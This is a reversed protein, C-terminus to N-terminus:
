LWSVVWIKCFLTGSYLVIVGALIWSALGALLCLVFKGVILVFSAAVTVSSGLRIIPPVATIRTSFPYTIAKESM